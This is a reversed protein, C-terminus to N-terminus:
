KGSAFVVLFGHANLNTNPFRWGTLDGATDTLYWGNLNVPGSSTNYIEVWDDYDGDEDALTHTNDAMFESIIVDGTAQVTSQILACLFLTFLLKRMLSALIM